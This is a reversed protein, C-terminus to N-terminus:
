ISLFHKIANSWDKLFSDKSYAEYMELLPEVGNNMITKLTNPQDIVVSPECKHFHKFYESSSVAIPKRAALAYDPASALGSYPSNDYFYCNISNQSLWNVLDQTELMEHSYEVLINPKTIIQEIEKKRHEIEYGYNDLFWSRPMHLRFICEDFEKNVISALRAIGKYNLAFGQYGIVPIDNKKIEINPGPPIFKTTVCVNKNGTLTPNVTIAYEFGGNHNESDFNDIMHQNMDHHVAVHKINPFKNRIEPDNMWPSAIFNWMYFILDPKLYEIKSITEEKSDTFLVNFNYNQMRILQDSWLKGYLGVGCASKEGLTPTVMLVKSTM